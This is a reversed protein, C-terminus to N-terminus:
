DTVALSLLERPDVRATGLQAGWHLHPGTARGTAGVVGLQEGRELLVGEAVDIRDLHFYMTYLGLGHDLVVLHGGFFFDGVLVVRGRNAAVVPAGREAAYDVGSHPMRPKGNIIRRSGFAGGRDDGGVPRTFRGHWLREPTVTRYLVLVRASEDAARREAAPDLDVMPIPLTLRQVPFTHPRIVVRGSAESAAGTSDVVGIRWSVKGSPADLDIGVLAAHDDGYAFFHLPRDGLSGEIQRAGRAHTVVVVVVDGQAPSAPQVRVELAAARSAGALSVVLIASALFWM